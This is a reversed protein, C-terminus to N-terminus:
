PARYGGLTVRLGTRVTRPLAPSGAAAEFRQDFANELTLYWRARPHLQYSGSIDFKQYAPDLNANPLLLSNGFFGDSLFTSDDSQGFFYGALALQARRDAYVVTLSGSNAPRRFPHAGVLPSFAGIQIGPFADNIAPSLAGGSLSRTVVADLYMYSATVKVRGLAAEGSLEAGKARNSQANVYAGFGSANAAAIPVGLQPLVANSVYEILDSFENDFYAARVRAHGGALGQEIGVDVGRSREPGVPSIGQRSPAGAPILAFLSSLEQFLSPEKIGKGANFTLKTDGATGTSTPGRLYAAVSVRPTGANGFVENHDVGVGATVYVRGALSARAEAFAGYNNRTTETLSGSNSTGHEHEVRVGGALDLAQAVHYDTQGHLLQRAVTSDFVSPFTGGYDLIARGSVTYGNGGRITVLNGLYNAGFGFPDFPTGTPTPNVYHYDQDAIALRITSQWRGTIQSQAAIAAYTSQRTQRSDDAIGYYDFANPSGYGTDIYRLTGTVNTRGGALVGVRAAFTNNTYANNPVSNDTQLHSYGAFYDVRQVAGGLSLDEHSTGLNGADAAVTAEPVRTRGRATTVNVVGTLADSGYLVSNSGRLVEVSEIGATALDAFDFAGGIDNAPVGDVLVKNFNSAGGRIFLGAAGGRGGTQVIQAGPVTRIPELLDTNGLADLTSGDIVTVAAGVQSQPVAAAAATVVLEQALPGVQLRVELSVQGSRAVFVADTVRTAFGSASVELQYRGEGLGKLAFAGQADSATDAVTQGDRLAKVAAGAVRGGLADVITGSMAGDDAARAAGLGLSALVAWACVIRRCM